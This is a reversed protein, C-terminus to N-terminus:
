NQFRMEASTVLVWVLQECTLQRSSNQEEIWKALREKEEAVPARCYVGRIAAEAIQDPHELAALKAALTKEEAAFLKQVAPNNSLFLAEAASTQGSSAPDLNALLEAAQQEITLYQAIRKGGTTGALQEARKELATGETLDARGTAVLVSFAYQRPSLLRLRMVAFDGESPPPSSQEWRSSLQYARSSVIAGVLRKVNYNSAVLDEALWELLGPVSPSNGSHIQDVPHVLGQGFFQQWLRNVFARCLFKQDQVAIDVLQQRRSVKPKKGNEEPPDVAVNGSLFMVKATKQSGDAAKFSVDGENKESISGKGGSTRHFFSAMGYYHDQKWDDVLPHDHCRACSVDVGFFVRTADTTLKDLDKARVDLFKIAAKTEPKDWPGTMIERFVVDWPKGARVSRRLYDTFEPNGAASGQLMEDLMAGMHLPFEPSELLEAVVQPYKGELPKGDKLRAEWEAPTPIRGLLDLSLRKLLTADDARSAPTIGKAQWHDALRKDIEKATSTFPEDAASWAPWFALAVALGSAAILIRRLIAAAFNM